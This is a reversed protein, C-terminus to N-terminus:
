FKSTCHRCSISEHQKKEAMDKLHELALSYKYVWAIDYTLDILSGITTTCMRQKKAFMQIMDTVKTIFSLTGIKTNDNKLM